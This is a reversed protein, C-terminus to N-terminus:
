VTFMPAQVLGQDIAEQFVPKVKAEAISPFALGLIGDLEQGTFFSALHTAQGFTVKPIVL